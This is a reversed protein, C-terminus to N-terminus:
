WDLADEAHDIIPTGTRSIAIGIVDVRWDIDASEIPESALYTEVAAMMRTQKRPTISEFAGETNDAHRTRVEVFVLIDDKQAIIDIEGRKCRWNTVVIQYGQ